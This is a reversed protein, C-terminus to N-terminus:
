LPPFGLRVSVVLAHSGVAEYDLPSMLTIQGSTGNFLFHGDVWLGLSTNFSASAEALAYRSRSSYLNLIKTKSGSKTSTSAVVAVNILRLSLKVAIPTSLSFYRIYCVESSNLLSHKFSVVRLWLRYWQWRCHRCGCCRCHWRCLGGRGGRQHPICLAVHVHPRNPQVHRQIGRPQRNDRTARVQLPQSYPGLHPTTSSHPALFGHFPYIGCM